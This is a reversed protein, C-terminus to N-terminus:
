LEDGKPYIRAADYYAIGRGRTPAYRRESPRLPAVRLPGRLPGGLPGTRRLDRSSNRSQGTRTGRAGRRHNDGHRERTSSHEVKRQEAARISGMVGCGGTGQSGRWPALASKPKARLASGWGETSSLITWEHRQTHKFTAQPRLEEGLYTCPALAVSGEAIACTHERRGELGDHALKLTVAATGHTKAAGQATARSRRKRKAPAGDQPRARVQLDM